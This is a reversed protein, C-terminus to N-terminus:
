SFTDSLDIQMLCLHTKKNTSVDLFSVHAVLSTCFIM